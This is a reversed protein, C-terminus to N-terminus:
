WGPAEDNCALDWLPWLDGVNWIHVVPLSHCPESSAADSTINLTVSCLGIKLELFCWCRKPLLPLSASKEMFCYFHVDSQDRPQLATVVAPRDSRPRRGLYNSAAAWLKGETSHRTDMWRWAPRWTELVNRKMDHLLILPQFAVSRYPRKQLSNRAVSFHWPCTFYPHCQRKWLLLFWLLLIHFPNRQLLQNCLYLLVPFFAWVLLVLSFFFVWGAPM